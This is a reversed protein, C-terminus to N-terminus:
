FRAANTTATATTKTTLKLLRNDKLVLWLVCALCLVNFKVLCRNLHLRCYRRHSLQLPLLGELWIRNEELKKLKTETEDEERKHKTNNSFRLHIHHHHLHHHKTFSSRNLLCAVLVCFIYYLYMTSKLMHTVLFSIFQALLIFSNM